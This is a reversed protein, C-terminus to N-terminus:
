QLNTNRIRRLEANETAKVVALHRAAKLANVLGVVREEVDDNECGINLDNLVEKIRALTAQDKTM